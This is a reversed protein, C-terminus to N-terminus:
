SGMIEPLLKDYSKHSICTYIDYMTYIYSDLWQLLLNRCTCLTCKVLWTQIMQTQTKHINHKHKIRTSTHQTVSILWYLCIIFLEPTFCVWEVAAATSDGGWYEIADKRKEIKNRRKREGKTSKYKQNLMLPGSLSKRTVQGPNSYSPFTPQNFLFFVFTTNNNNILKKDSSQIITIFTDCTNDEKSSIKCM